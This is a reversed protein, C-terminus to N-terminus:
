MKKIFSGDTFYYIKVGVYSDDVEQGLINIIKLIKKDKNPRYVSILDSYVFKGDFDTQKLRYYTMDWPQYEEYHYDLVMNSNGAGNMISVIEYDVGDSTKELTFFDNNQESATTWEILNCREEPSGKFEILTIPLSVTCGITFRTIDYYYVQIAKPAGGVYSNSIDVPTQFIGGQTLSWANLNARYWIVLSADTTLVFRFRTATKPITYSPTLNKVGTFTSQTVWAGANYYQFVMFDYNNEIVGVIPFSVTLTTGGCLASYNAVPSTIKITSSNPYPTTGVNLTAYNEAGGYNQMGAGNTYTWTTGVNFEEIVPMQGLLIM